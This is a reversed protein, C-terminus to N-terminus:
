SGKEVSALYATINALEPGLFEFRPMTATDRKPAYGEPYEGRMVKAEVVELPTGALAPGLTGDVNPDGSHCAICVNQYYHEGRAVQDGVSGEEAAGTQSATGDGCALAAILLLLLRPIVSRAQRVPRM